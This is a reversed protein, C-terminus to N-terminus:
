DKVEETPQILGYEKKIQEMIAVMQEPTKGEIRKSFQENVKKQIREKERKYRRNFTSSM